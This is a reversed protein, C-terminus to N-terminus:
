KGMEGEDVWGEGAEEKIWRKGGGGQKERGNGMGWGEVPRRKM